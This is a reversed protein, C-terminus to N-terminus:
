LRRRTGSMPRRELTVAMVVLILCVIFMVLKLQSM